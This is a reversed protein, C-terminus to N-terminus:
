FVVWGSTSGDALVDDFEAAPKAVPVDVGLTPKKSVDAARFHLHGVKGCIDCTKERHPCEKVSHATSGCCHCQSPEPCQGAIHGVAGGNNCAIGAVDKVKKGGGRDAQRCKVALHGVKGCIDCTKSKNLCMAVSHATSGCCHCQAAEPCQGALHGVAGCNNCTKDGVREEMRCKVAMHGTKGCLDCVADRHPCDKVAHDIGGCCHCQAAEPCQGALHCRAGCNNCTKSGAFTKGGAIRNMGGVGYPESRASKKDARSSSAKGGRRGSSIMDDLSMDLNM